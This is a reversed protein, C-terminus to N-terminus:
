ATGTATALTASGIDKQVWLENQFRLEAYDNAASLVLAGTATGSFVLYAEGTALMVVTKEQGEQAGRAGTATASPLLYRNVGFGTATGGSITSVPHDLGLEQVATATSNTLDESSQWGGIRNADGATITITM